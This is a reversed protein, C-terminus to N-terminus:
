LGHFAEDDIPTDWEDLTLSLYDHFAENMAEVPRLAVGDDQVEYAILDGPRVGLSERIAKPITVQGKSSIRSVKM